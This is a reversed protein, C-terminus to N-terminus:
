EGQRLEKASPWKLTYEVVASGKATSKVRLLVTDVEFEEPLQIDGTLHQFYRFKFNLV